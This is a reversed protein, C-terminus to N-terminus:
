SQPSLSPDKEMIFDWVKQQYTKGTIEGIDHHGAGEVLWLEKEGESAQYLEQSMEYPVIPDNTGHIYFIPMKLSSLKKKSNFRQTLVWNIPLWNYKGIRTAMDFISTFSGEIILGPIQPQRNALELAIAGGLSHGFVYLHDPAINREEVLYRWAIEADEYVREESPFRGESKGYGRYDMLFVSFGVSHFRQARPLNTGVNGGNGHLYLMVPANSFESPIWWGHLNEGEGMPIYVSEYPLNYESPTAQITQCPFFVLRRQTAFLTLGAVLYAIAGVALVYIMVRLRSRLWSAM